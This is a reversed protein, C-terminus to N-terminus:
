QSDGVDLYARTPDPKLIAQEMRIDLQREISEFYVDYAIIQPTGDQGGMLSSAESAEANLTNYDRRILAKEIQYALMMEEAAAPNANAASIYGKMAKQRGSLEGAKGSILDSKQAKINSQIGSFFGKVSGVVAGVGIATGYAVQGAGPAANVVFAAGAVTGGYGIAEPIVNAGGALFAEQWNIGQEMAELSISTDINGVQSALDQKRQAEEQQQALVEVRTLGEPTAVAKFRKAQEYSEMSSFDSSRLPLNIDYTDGQPTTKLYPETGPRATAGVQQKGLVSDPDAPATPAPAPEAKPKLPSEPMICKNTTSDWKGGDSICRLKDAGYDSTQKDSTQKTEPKDFDNIAKFAPNTNPLAM